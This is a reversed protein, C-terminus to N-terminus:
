AMVEEPEAVLLRGLSDKELVHQRVLQSITSFIVQRPADSKTQIRGQLQDAIQSSNFFGPRESVLAMLAVKVGAGRVGEVVVLSRILGHIEDLRNLIKEAQEPPINTREEQPM